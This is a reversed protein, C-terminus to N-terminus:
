PEDPTPLPTQNIKKRRFYTIFSSIISSFIILAAVCFSIRGFYDGHEVYYTIESNAKISQKLAIPEWWESHELVDGRQNIFGSIGTNASRAVCRRTEIARLRAYDFHQKYGPTDGWWGDNTIIFIFNAGNKVYESVYEGYVSEYCIVPAAKINENASYFPTRDEQIGYSGKMGGLNVSYKELFGLYKSFPMKEVGPVLKSKHYIQIKKSSDIYLATNYADYFVGQHNGYKRATASLPEGPKFMKYTSAGTIIKLDPYPEQFKRIMLFSTSSDLEDEYMGEPLATEPFLLFRTNKDVKSKSLELMKALQDEMSMGGFKENYPDINPQVVVIDFAKGKEEYNKYIFLSWIIPIVIILSITVALIKSKRLDPKSSFINKLLLFFLINSLLIWFTGGFTGSYEYWQVWTIQNAFGNGLNLWSWTLDWNLHLFEFTIWCVILSIYGRNGKFTRRTLHFVTFAIAMLTANFIFAFIGGVATSNYVWYTTLVNWVLFSIFAYLMISLRRFKNRNTLIYDEVLLLPVFAFFLIVPFGRAPWAVSLLLGTLISLLFLKYKRM